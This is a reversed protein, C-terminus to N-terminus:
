LCSKTTHSQAHHCVCKAARFSWTGPRPSTNRQRTIHTHEHVWCHQECFEREGRCSSQQTYPEKEPFAIQVFNISRQSGAEIAPLLASVQPLLQQVSFPVISQMIALSKQSLWENYNVDGPSWSKAHCLLSSADAGKNESWGDSFPKMKEANKEQQGQEHKGTCEASQHTCLIYTMRSWSQKATARCGASFWGM